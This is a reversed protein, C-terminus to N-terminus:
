KPQPPYNRLSLPGERPRDPRHHGPPRPRVPPHAGCPGICPQVPYWPYVPYYINPQAAAEAEAALHEDIATLRRLEELKIQEALADAEAKRREATMTALAEKERQLREQAVAARQEREAQCQEDACEGVHSSINTTTSGHPCPSDSYLTKGEATLCRFVEAHASCAVLAILFLFTRM